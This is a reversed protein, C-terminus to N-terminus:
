YRPDRSHSSPLIVGGQMNTESLSEGVSDVLKWLTEQKEESVQPCKPQVAAIAVGLTEEVPELTAIRKYLTVPQDSPNMLRVPIQAGPNDLLSRAVMVPTADGEMIWTGPVEPQVLNAMVEMVIYAPVQLTEGITVGITTTTGQTGHPIVSTGRNTFHLTKKRIDVTCSHAELFDLGLIVDATLGDVVVVRPQFTEEGLRLEVQVTGCVQLPTGEVGVLRQGNWPELVAESQKIQDWIGRQLLTM